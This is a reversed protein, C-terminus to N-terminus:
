FDASQMEIDGLNLWEFVDTFNTEVSYKIFQISKEDLKRFQVFRFSFQETM